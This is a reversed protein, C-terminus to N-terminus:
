MEYQITSYPLGTAVENMERWTNVYVDGLAGKNEVTWTSSTGLMEAYAAGTFRVTKDEIFISLRLHWFKIEKGKTTLLNLDKNYTDIEYGRRTLYSVIDRVIGQQDKESNLTVVIQKANRPPKQAIAINGICLVLGILLLKKM